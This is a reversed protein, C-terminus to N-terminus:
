TFGKSPSCAPEPLAVPNTTSKSLPKISVFLCTMPVPGILASAVKTLLSSTGKVGTYRSGTCSKPKNWKSTVFNLYASSNCRASIGNASSPAFTPRSIRTTPLSEPSFIWIRAPVRALNSLFAGSYPPSPKLSKLM